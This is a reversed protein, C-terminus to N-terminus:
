HPEANAVGISTNILYGIQVKAQEDSTKAMVRRLIPELFRGHQAVLKAIKRTADPSLEGSADPSADITALQEAVAAEMEPTIIEARGVLVRVTQAPAPEITLPLVADTVKRPVLYFVRLGEEFWSDNWANVMAAAEKDYLGEATLMQVFDRRLADLDGSLVPRAVRVDDATLDAVSYGQKGGRNEFLIAKAVRNKGPSTLAVAGGDSMATVKVTLPLDFSGVGRYFLFKETENGNKTAVLLPASDTERAPYYHSAASEMPFSTDLGPLIQVAQWGISHDAKNKAEPFWETVTGQPFAVHVSVNAARDSYFYIVPTEMRVTGRYLGKWDVGKGGHVFAPLGSPAILPRWAMASGDEGVVTTFTGWEHAILRAPDRRARQQAFLSTGVMLTTAVILATSLLYLFTRKSM